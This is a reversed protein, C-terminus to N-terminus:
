SLHLRDARPARDREAVIRRDIFEISGVDVGRTPQPPSRRRRPRGLERAIAVKQQNGGSLTVVASDVSGTRIDYESAASRADRRIAVLRLSYVM